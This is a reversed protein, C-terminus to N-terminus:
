ICSQEQILISWPDYLTSKSIIHDSFGALTLKQSEEQYREKSMKPAFMIDDIFDVPEINIFKYDSKESEYEALLRVEHEYEFASRKMLLAKAIGKGSPDYICHDHQDIKQVYESLKKDTLYEVKGVFRRLSNYQDRKDWITKFLKEVTTQIRVGGSSSCCYIRWFADCENKLTWCQAFFDNTVNFGILGKESIIRVDNLFNEAPDDWKGPKCLRMTRNKIMETFHKLKMYRYISTSMKLDNLLNNQM